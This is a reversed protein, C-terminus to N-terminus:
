PYPPMEIKSGHMEFMADVAAQVLKLGAKYEVQQMSAEYGGAVIANAHCIYSVYDTSNYLVYARRFPSHWKIELGVEALLEGPVGVFCIDGVALLQLEMKWVSCDRFNRRRKEVPFEARPLVEFPVIASKLQPDALRFKAPKRFAECVGRTVERVVPKAITDLNQPGIESDIPFQDGAAGTVFVCHAGVAENILKRIMGPYDASIFHSGRGMSHAALPHAAYNIVVEVPLRTKVDRFFLMGVEPDVVGDSLPELSRYGPLSRCVNEPGCYRRNTNARAAASYFYVDTELWEKKAAEACAAITKAVLEDCYPQLLDSSYNSRTHPGEHTHTCSLIIFSEETGLVEACGRRIKGVLCADMGILDFGLLAAKRQGDDMLLGTLFLDDHVEWSEQGPGYGALECGVPPTINLDFSSIKM